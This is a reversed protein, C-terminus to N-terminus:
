TSVERTVHEARLRELDVRLCAITHLLDIADLPTCGIKSDNHTAKRAARLRLTETENLAEILHEPWLLPPLARPRAAGTGVVGRAAAREFLGPINGSPTPPTPTPSLSCYTTHLGAGVGCDKCVKPHTM